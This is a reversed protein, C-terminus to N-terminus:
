NDESASHYSEVTEIRGLMEDYAATWNPHDIFLSMPGGPRACDLWHSGADRRMWLLVAQELLEVVARKGYYSEYANHVICAAEERTTAPALMDAATAEGCRKLKGKSDKYWPLGPIFDATDGHLCQLWFWKEGYQKDNHVADYTGPPLFFMTHDQWDMHWGPVMRMDKDQTGIVTRLPDAHGHHGFLDDAEATATIATTGFAGDTLLDRLARWNAPRRSNARQGQYPKVRAVAYRYGKHSGSATLLIRHDSAGCVRRMGDVKDRTREKAEGLLTSDNGACYYALGDGDLYLCRGHLVPVAGLAQPNVAAVKSQLTALDM